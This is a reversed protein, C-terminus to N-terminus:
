GKVWVTIPALDQAFWTVFLGGIVVSCNFPGFVTVRGVFDLEELELELELEM